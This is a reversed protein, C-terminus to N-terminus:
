AKVSKRGLLSSVAARCTLALFVAGIVSGYHFLGCVSDDFPARDIPLNLRARCQATAPVHTCWEAWAKGVAPFAISTNEDTFVYVGAHAVRAANWFMGVVDEVLTTENTNHYYSACEFPPPSSLARGLPTSLLM